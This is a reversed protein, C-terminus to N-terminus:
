ADILVDFHRQLNAKIGIFLRRCDNSVPTGSVSLVDTTWNSYALAEHLATIGTCRVGECTDLEALEANIMQLLESKSKLTKEM